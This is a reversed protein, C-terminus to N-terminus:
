QAPVQVAATPDSGAEEPGGGARAGEKADGGSGCHDSALTTPLHCFIHRESM